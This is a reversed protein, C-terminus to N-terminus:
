AIINVQVAAFGRGRGFLHAFHNTRQIFRRLPQGQPGDRVDTVALNLFHAADWVIPVSGDFARLKESVATKFPETQYQGDAVIGVLQGLPPDFNALGAFMRNALSPGTADMDSEYVAPAGGPIAVADGTECRALILVAQNTIRGTPSINKRCKHAVHIIHM